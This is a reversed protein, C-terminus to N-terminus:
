QEEIIEVPKLWISGDRATTPQTESFTFGDDEIITTGGSAGSNTNKIAEQNKSKVIETFLTKKFGLKITYSDNTLSIEAVPMIVVKGNKDHVEIMTYLELERLDIPTQTNTIMVNENYRNNVLESMANFQAKQFFGDEFVKAKIPLILQELPITEEYIQNDRGLYYSRKPIDSPRVVVSSSVQYYVPYTDPAGQEQVLLKVAYGYSYNEADDMPEPFSQIVEGKDAAKNWYEETSPIWGKGTPEVNDIKLTAVAKNITTETKTSEHIFDKLKIAKTDENKVIDCHITKTSEDFSAKIRYQYYALYPKLFSNANVILYQTDYNAIWDIYDMPEEYSFEFEMIGELENSVAEVVDRFVQWLRLPANGPTTAYDLVVETDFISKFDGGKFVVKNQDQKINQMFGSYVQKGTEECLIFIFGNDSVDVETMGEFTSTDFDFVRRTLEYKANTINTIHNLERDYIALYMEDGGKKPRLKGITFVTLVIILAILMTKKKQM